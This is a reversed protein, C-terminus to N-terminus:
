ELVEEIIENLILIKGRLFSRRIKNQTNCEDLDEEIIMRIEKLIRILKNRDITDENM